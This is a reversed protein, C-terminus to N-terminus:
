EKVAKPRQIVTQKVGNRVGHEKITATITLTDGKGRAIGDPNFLVVTSTGKYIVTNQDADEMIYIFTTGYSGELVVVHGVTLTLTLKEGVTGIHERTADLAAKKDAWEARREERKIISKRVANVQGETLKGYKDYASALSGLFGDEYGACRGNRYIRGPAIFSLVEEYDPYTKSFTKQANGIIYAKRANEYAVPHEIHATSM